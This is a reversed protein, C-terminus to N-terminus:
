DDDEIQSRLQESSLLQTGNVVVEDGVDMKSSFYYDKNLPLVQELPIRTFSDEALKRYVYANEGVWVLATKPIQVGQTKQEVPVWAILRMGPQIGPHQTQYFYSVGYKTNDVSPAQSIFGAPKADNRNSSTGVHITKIQAPQQDVPITIKLLSRKGLLFPELRAKKEDLLWTSITEGWTLMAENSIAQQKLRSTEVAARDILLKSQQSQLKQKSTIGSGFLERQRQSTELSYRYSASAQQQENLLTLHRSQLELLPLLSIATGFVTFETQFKAPKLRATKIGTVEENVHLVTEKGDLLFDDAGAIQCATFFLFVLGFRM